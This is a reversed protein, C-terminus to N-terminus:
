GEASGLAARAITKALAGNSVYLSWGKEADVMQTDRRLQNGAWGEAHGHKFVEPLAGRQAEIERDREALKAANAAMAEASVTAAAKAASIYNRWETEVLQQVVGEADGMHIEPDAKCIARAMAEVLASDAPPTPRTYLPTETWGLEEAGRTLPKVALIDPMGKCHHIWAVPKAEDTM